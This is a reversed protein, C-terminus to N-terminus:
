RKELRIIRYTENKYILIGSIKRGSITFTWNSNYENSVLQKTTENYSCHLIGMDEEVGNVIKNAQINFSDNGNGKSIHYVVVEDHCPSNKVQCISTGQWKGVLLTDVQTVTKQGAAYQAFLLALCLFQYKFLVKPKMVIQFMLALSKNPLVRTRNLSKQTYYKIMFFIITFGVVHIHPNIKNIKRILKCNTRTTLTGALYIKPQRYLLHFLFAM